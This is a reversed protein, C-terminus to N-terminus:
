HEIRGNWDDLVEALTAELPITASWGTDHRIKTVDAVARALSTSRIDFHDALTVLTWRSALPGTHGAAHV